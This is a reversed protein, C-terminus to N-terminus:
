FQRQFTFQYGTSKYNDLQYNTDSIQRVVSLQPSFGLITFGRNLVGLQITRIKKRRKDGNLVLFSSEYDVWQANGSLSATFGWPLLFVAGIEVQRIRSRSLVDKSRARSMAGKISGLITPSFYYRGSLSVGANPGNGYKDMSSSVSGSTSFRPSWRQNGGVSLGFVDTTYHEEGNFERRISARLNIDNGSLFTFKPGSYFAIESNDFNHGAYETRKLDVGSLLSWQSSLPYTYGGGATFVLGPGSKEGEDLQFPLLSGFTEIYIIRNMEVRSEPVVAYNFYASWRRRARIESLFRNINSIVSKPPNGVLVREFEQKALSDEGQEFFARALELRVRELDPRVTLIQHFSEVAKDLLDARKDEDTTQRAAELYALGSLFLVETKYHFNESSVDKLIDLARFYDAAEVAERAQIIEPPTSEQAISPFAFFSLIFVILFRM